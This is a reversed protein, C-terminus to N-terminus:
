YLEILGVDEDQLASLIRAHAQLLADLVVDNSVNGLALLVVKPPYGRIALLHLFDDDKTVIAFGRERAFDWVQSDSSQTLGELAVQSTGPFASQLSPVIRRSLNEDLLLKM